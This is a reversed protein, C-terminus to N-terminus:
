MLAIKKFHVKQNQITVLLTIKFNIGQKRKNECGKPGM